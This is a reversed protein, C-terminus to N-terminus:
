CNSWPIIDECYLQLFTCALPNEWFAKSSEWSLQTAVCQNIDVFHM